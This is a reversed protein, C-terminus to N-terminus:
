VYNGCQLQSANHAFPNIKSTPIKGKPYYKKQFEEKQETNEYIPETPHRYKDDIYSDEDDDLLGEIIRNKESDSGGSYGDVFDFNKRKRKKREEQM